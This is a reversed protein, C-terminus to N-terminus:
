SSLCCGGTLVVDFAKATPHIDDGRQTKKRTLGGLAFSGRQPGGDRWFPAYNLLNMM